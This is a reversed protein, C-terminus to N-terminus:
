VCSHMADSMKAELMTINRKKM